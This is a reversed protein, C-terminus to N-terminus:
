LVDGDFPLPKLKRSSSLVGGPSSAAAAIGAAV